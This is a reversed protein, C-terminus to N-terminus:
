AALYILSSLFVEQMLAKSVTVSGTLPICENVFVSFYTYYHTNHDCVFVNFFLIVFIWSLVRVIVTRLLLPSVKSNTFVLFRRKRM